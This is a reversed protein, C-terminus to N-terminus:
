GEATKLVVHLFYTGTQFATDLKAIETFVLHAIDNLAILEFSHGLFESPFSLAKHFMAHQADVFDYFSFETSDNRAFDTKFARKDGDVVDFDCRIQLIRVNKDADKSRLFRFLYHRPEFLMTNGKLGFERTAHGHFERRMQNKVEILRDRAARADNFNQLLDVVVLLLVLSRSMM